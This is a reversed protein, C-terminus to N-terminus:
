IDLPYRNKGGVAEAPHCDSRGVSSSLIKSYHLPRHIPQKLQQQVSKEAPAGQPHGGRAARTQCEAISRPPRDGHTKGGARGFPANQEVGFELEAFSVHVTTKDDFFAGDGVNKGDREALIGFNGIPAARLPQPTVDIATQLLEIRTPARAAVSRVVVIEVAPEIGQEEIGVALVAATIKLVGPLREVVGLEGLLTMEDGLQQHLRPL